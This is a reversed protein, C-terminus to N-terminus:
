REVTESRLCDRGEDSRAMLATASPEALHQLGPHRSSAYVPETAGAPMFIKVAKHSYGKARRYLSKAVTADAERGRALAESFEKHEQKWLYFTSVAVELADAIKEDSAGLLCL